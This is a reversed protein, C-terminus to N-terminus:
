SAFPATGTRSFIVCLFYLALILFDDLISIFINTQVTLYLSYPALDHTFGVSSSQKVRNLDWDMSIADAMDDSCM